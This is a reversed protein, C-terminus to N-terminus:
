SHPAGASVAVARVMKEQNGQPEAPLLPLPHHLLDRTGCSGQHLIPAVQAGVQARCSSATSPPLPFLLFLPLSNLFIHLRTNFVFLFSFSILFSFFFFFLEKFSSKFFTM